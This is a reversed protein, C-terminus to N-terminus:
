MYQIHQCPQWRREWEEPQKIETCQILPLNLQWNAEHILIFDLADQGAYVALRCCAVSHLIGQGYALALAPPSNMGLTLVETGAVDNSVSASNTNAYLKIKDKTQLNFYSQAFPNSHRGM